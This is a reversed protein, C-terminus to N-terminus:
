KVPEEDRTMTSYRQSTKVTTNGMQQGATILKEVGVRRRRLGVCCRVWALKLHDLLRSVWSNLSSYRGLM